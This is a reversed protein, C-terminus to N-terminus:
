RARKGAKADLVGLRKRLAAAAFSVFAVFVTVGIGDSVVSLIQRYLESSLAEAVLWAVLGVIAVLWWATVLQRTAWDM